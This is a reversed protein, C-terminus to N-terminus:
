HRPHAWGLTVISASPDTTGCASRRGFRARRQEPHPATARIEAIDSGQGTAMADIVSPANIIAPASTSAFVYRM